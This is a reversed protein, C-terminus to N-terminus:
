RSVLRRLVNLVEAEYKEAAFAEGSLIAAVRSPTIQDQRIEEVTSWGGSDPFVFKWRRPSPGSWQATKRTTSLLLMELLERRVGTIEEPVADVVHWEREKVTTM